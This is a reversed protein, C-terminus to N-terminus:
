FAGCDARTRELRVGVSAAYRLAGPKEVQVLVKAIKSEELCLRAIDSAMAELTYRQSSEVLRIIDKTLTRYNVSDDLNDTVGARRLDLTLTLTLLVDQREVREWDNVGIIARVLLDKIVITDSGM